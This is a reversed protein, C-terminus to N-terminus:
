TTCLVQQVAKLWGRYQAQVQESKQSPVFTREGRSVQELERLSGSGVGLMGMMAAGLASCDPQEAVHLEIGLLDATFQMLGENRTGGGDCRLHHIQMGAENQLMEVVDRLQYAIAEIAARVIHARTSHASLGVIAARAGDRWYPAGMGSFAPVLYV